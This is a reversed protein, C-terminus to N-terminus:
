GGQVPPILSIEDQERLTQSKSVYDLGVAVMCAGLHRGLAPHRKTLEELAFSVTAEEPLEMELQETGAEIRMQAFLRVHVKM